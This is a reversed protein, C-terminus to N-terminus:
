SWIESQAKSGTFSRIGSIRVSRLFSNRRGCRKRSRSRKSLQISGNSRIDRRCGREDVLAKRNLDAGPLPDDQLSKHRAPM